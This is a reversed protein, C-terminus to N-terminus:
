IHSRMSAAPSSFHAECVEAVAFGGARLTRETTRYRHSGATCRYAWRTYTANRRYGDPNVTGFFKVGFGNDQAEM